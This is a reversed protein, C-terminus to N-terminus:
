ALIESDHDARGSEEVRGQKQAQQPMLCTDRVALRASSRYSLKLVQGVIDMNGLSVM